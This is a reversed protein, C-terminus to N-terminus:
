REDPAELRAYDLTPEHEPLVVRPRENKCRWCEYIEDGCIAWCEPCMWGILRKVRGRGYHRERVSSPIYEAVRRM